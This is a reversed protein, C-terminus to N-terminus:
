VVTCHEVQRDEGVKGREDGLGQSFSWFFPPTKVVRVGREERNCAAEPQAGM